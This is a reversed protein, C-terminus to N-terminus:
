VGPQCHQAKTTSLGPALLTAYAPGRPQEPMHPPQIVAASPLPAGAPAWRTTGINRTPQGREVGRVWGEAWGGMSGARALPVFAGPLSSSHAAPAAHRPAPWLQLKWDASHENFSLWAAAAARSDRYAGPECPGRAGKGGKTGPARWLTPGGIVRNNLFWHQSATSHGHQKSDTM